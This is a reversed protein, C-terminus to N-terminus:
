GKHSAQFFNDLADLMQTVNDGGSRASKLDLWMDEVKLRNTIKDMTRGFTDTHYRRVIEEVNKYESFCNSRAAYLARTFEADNDMIEGFTKMNADINCAQAISTVGSAADTILAAVSAFFDINSGDITKLKRSEVNVQKFFLNTNNFALQDTHVSDKLETLKSITERRKTNWKLYERQFNRMMREYEDMRGNIEINFKSEMSETFLKRDNENPSSTGASSHPKFKQKAGGGIMGEFTFKSSSSRSNSPEDGFFLEDGNLNNRREKRNRRSGM